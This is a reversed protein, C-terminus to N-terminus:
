MIEKFIFRKFMWKIRAFKLFHILLNIMLQIDYRCHIEYFCHFILIYIFHEFHLDSFNISFAIFYRLLFKNLININM